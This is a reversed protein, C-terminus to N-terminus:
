PKRESDAISSRTHRDIADKIDRVMWRLHSYEKRLRDLESVAEDRQSRLEDSSFDGLVFNVKDAPLRMPAVSPGPVPATCHHDEIVYDNTKRAAVGGCEPCKEHISIKM